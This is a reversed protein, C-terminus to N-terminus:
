RTTCRRSYGRRKACSCFALLLSMTKIVCLVSDGVGKGAVLVDGIAGLVDLLRALPAWRTEGLGRALSEEIPIPIHNDPSVRTLHQVVSSSCDTEM